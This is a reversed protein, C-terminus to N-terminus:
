AARAERLAAMGTRMLLASGRQIPLLGIGRALTMRAVRLEASLRREGYRDRLARLEAAESPTLTEGHPTM